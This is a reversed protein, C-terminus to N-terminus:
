DERSPFSRRRLGKKMSWSYRAVKRAALFGGNASRETFSHPNVAKTSVQVAVAQTDM